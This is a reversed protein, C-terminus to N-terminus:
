RKEQRLMVDLKRRQELEELQEQSRKMKNNMYKTAERIKMRETQLRQEM